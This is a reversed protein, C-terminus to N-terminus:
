FSPVVAAAAEDVASQLIDAQLDELGFASEVDVGVDAAVTQRPLVEALPKEVLMLAGDDGAHGEAFAALFEGADGVGVRDLVDVLGQFAHLGEDLRQLLGRIGFIEALGKVDAGLDAIISFSRAGALFIM